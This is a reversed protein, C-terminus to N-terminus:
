RLRGLRFATSTGRRRDLSFAIRPLKAPLAGCRPARALGAPIGASSTLARGCRLRSARSPWPRSFETGPVGPGGPEYFLTGIRRGPGSARHRILALEIDGGRPRAYDLPVRITACQFGRQASESCTHWPIPPAAAVANGSLLVALLAGGSVLVVILRRM